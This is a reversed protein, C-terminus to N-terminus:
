QSPVKLATRAIDGFLECADTFTDGCCRPGAFTPQPEAIQKLAGELERVRAVLEPLANIAACILAADEFCPASPYYKADDVFGLGVSISYSQEGEWEREARLDHFIWPGPTGAKLLQELEELKDADM